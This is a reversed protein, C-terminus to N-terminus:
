GSREVRLTNRDVIVGHQSQAAEIGLKGDLLDRAIADLSRERPDGYGGAGPM